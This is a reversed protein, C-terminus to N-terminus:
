PTLVIKGGVGGSEMLRHAHAVESLPLVHAIPVELGGTAVAEMVGALDAGSPVVAYFEPKAPLDDGEIPTTAATLIRGGTKLNRCLRAVDPGGVTDVVDDFPEGTWSDDDLVLAEDAGAALAQELQNGRVAAVVHAGRRKAAYLCARGVAGLAGTLLVREGAQVDLGKEIMQFGTLGGTGVAAATKLDVEDPIIAILACPVAVYEAYTGKFLKALVRTGPAFEEGEVVEGAVDNGLIHPFSLPSFADFMGARWKLDAPNVTTARIRVLSEGSGAAPVPVEAEELKDPGGYGKIIFAKM